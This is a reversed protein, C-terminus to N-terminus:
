RRRSRSRLRLRLRLAVSAAGGCKFTAPDDVTPITVREDAGIELKPAELIYRLDAAQKRIDQPRECCPLQATCCVCACSM